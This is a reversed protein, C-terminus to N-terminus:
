FGGEDVPPPLPRLIQKPHVAHDAKWSPRRSRHQAAGRDRFGTTGSFGTMTQLFGGRGTSQAAELNLRFDGEEPKTWPPVDAPYTVSDVVIIGQNNVNDTEIAGLTNEQSGAGFGCNEVIGIKQGSDAGIGYGGNKVFNSSSIVNVGTSAPIHAGDDGNDYSDCSYLRLAGTGNACSFGYQGNNHAICDVFAAGLVNWFGIGSAGANHHSVCRVAEGSKLQFGQAGGATYLGCNYAECEQIVVELTAGVGHGAVDHVVVRRAYVWAGTILLGVSTGTDGNQCVEFDEFKTPNAFTAIVFTTGTLPGEIRTRGGDGFESTYGQHLVYKKNTGLTATIAYVQDNKWNIRPVTNAPSAKICSQDLFTWPFVVTGSPGAWAGGINLTRTNTGDTPATGSKATLSVTITTADVATVRGVFGTATAGDAYVSAFDGVAVGDAAPDGSAVTFVGTSAVWSGSAYTFDAATGPETEDGIRTGANLNSGGARICFNTYSM